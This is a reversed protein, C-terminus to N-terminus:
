DAAEYETAHSSRSRLSMVATRHCFHRAMSIDDIPADIIRSPASLANLARYLSAAIRALCANLFLRRCLISRMIDRLRPVTYARYAVRRRPPAATSEADDDLPLREAM